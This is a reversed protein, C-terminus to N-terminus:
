RNILRILLNLVLTLVLSLLIMTALPFFCAVGRGEYRIDGPLHGLRLGSIRGLGIFLLGTIVLLAGAILLLRGASNLDM